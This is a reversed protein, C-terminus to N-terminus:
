FLNDVIIVEEEIEYGEEKVKQKLLSSLKIFDSANAKGTNILFNAHKQSVAADGVRINKAGIKELIAGVAIKKGDPLLINKFFSGASKVKPPNEPLRKKRYEIIEKRKKSIESKEGKPLKFIIKYIFEKKEKYLSWRYAFRLESKEREIIEGEKTISIVKEIYDKIERGFAGANGYVAGGVSGPIGSLEEYGKLEEKELFDLFEGLSTGSFVEVKEESLKKIGKISNKILFFPFFRDSFLINTGDGLFFTRLARERAFSFATKLQELNFVETFFLAKGGVKLSSLSAIPINGKIEINKYDFKYM